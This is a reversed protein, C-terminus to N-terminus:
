RSLAFTIHCLTISARSTYSDNSSAVPACRFRGTMLAARSPTCQSEVNYNTLKLGEAAFHDVNPTKAGLPYAGGYCGWDGVSTNDIHFYLINPKKADVAHASTFAVASLLAAALLTQIRTTILTTDQRHNIPKTMESERYLRLDSWGPM